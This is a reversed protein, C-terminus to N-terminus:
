MYMYMYIIYMRVHIILITCLMLQSNDAAYILTLNDTHMYLIRLIQSVIAIEHSVNRKDELMTCIATIGSWISM